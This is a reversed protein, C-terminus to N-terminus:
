KWTPLLKKLYQKSFLKDKGSLKNTYATYAPGLTLNELFILFKGSFLDLNQVSYFTLQTLLQKGEGSDIDEDKFSFYYTIARM